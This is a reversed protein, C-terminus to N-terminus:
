KNTKLEKFRKAYDAVTGANTPTKIWLLAEDLDKGIPDGSDGDLITTGLPVKKLIGARIYKQIMAKNTINKDKVTALFEVPTGSAILEIAIDQSTEDQTVADSEFVYLVDLLADRKSYLESLKIISERKIKSDEAVIRKQVEEDFIYIRIHAHTDVNNHHNAVDRYGMCYRYLLYDEKNLPTAYRYMFKYFTPDKTLKANCYTILGDEDKVGANTIYKARRPDSDDFDYTFGIELQKGAGTVYVCISNWYNKVEKAWDPSNESIGILEPLVMKMEEDNSTMAAVATVTTGIIEPNGNADIVKVNAMQFSNNKNKKLLTVKRSIEKM